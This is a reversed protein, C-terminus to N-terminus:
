YPDGHTQYFNRYHWREGELRVLQENRIGKVELVILGLEKDLILIDPEKGTASKRFIPYHWYALCERKAFASKVHEWVTLEAIEGPRNARETEIFRPLDLADDKFLNLTPSLLQTV